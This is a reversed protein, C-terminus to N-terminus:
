NFDNTLHLSAAGLIPGKHANQLFVACGRGKHKKIEAAPVTLVLRQGRWQGIKKLVRVVNYNSLIV